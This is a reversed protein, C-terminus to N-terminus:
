NKIQNYPQIIFSCLSPPLIVEMLLWPLHAISWTLVIQITFMSLVFRTSLYEGDFM